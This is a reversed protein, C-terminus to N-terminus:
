GDSGGAEPQIPITATATADTLLGGAQAREIAQARTSVGLKRYINVVHTKVTSRSVGLRQAIGELTLYTALLPLVRAEARTFTPERHNSRSEMSATTPHPAMRASALRADARKGRGSQNFRPSARIM